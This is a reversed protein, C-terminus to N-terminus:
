EDSRDRSAAGDTPEGDSAERSDDAASEESGFLSRYVWAWVKARQRRPGDRM